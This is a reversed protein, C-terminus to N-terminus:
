PRHPEPTAVTEGRLFAVVRDWMAPARSGAVMGVHGGPLRLVEAHEIVTAIADCGDPPSIHDRGASISLVPMTIRALDVPIDGVSSRGQMFENHGPGLKGSIEALLRGSAPVVDDVWTAMTRVGQLKELPLDLQKMLDDIRGQQSNSGPALMEFWSKVTAAPVIRPNEFSEGDAGLKTATWGIGGEVDSDFLTTVVVLRKVQEPHLATYLLSLTGGLCYGIVNFADDGSERRVARFARKMYGEVYWELGAFRDEDAPTGFDILYTDFGSAGMHGAFSRGPMLDLIFYRSVPAPVFLLAPGEFPNGDDDLMRLVRMSGEEYIVRSNTAGTGYHGETDLLERLRDLRHRHQASAALLYDDSADVEAM